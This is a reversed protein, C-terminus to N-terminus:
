STPVLRDVLATLESNIRDALARRDEYGSILAIGDNRIRAALQVLPEASRRAERGRVTTERVSVILRDSMLPNDLIGEFLAIEALSLGADAVHELWPHRSLLGRSLLVREPVSAGRVRGLLLIVIPRDRRITDLVSAVRNASLDRATESGTVLTVEGFTLNRARCYRRLEPLCFRDVLDRDDFVDSGTTIVAVRLEQGAVTAAPVATASRIVAM